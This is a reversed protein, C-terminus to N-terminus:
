KQKVAVMLYYKDIYATDDATHWPTNHLRYYIRFTDNVIKNNNYTSDNTYVGFSWRNEFKDSIPFYLPFQLVNKDFANENVMFEMNFLNCINNFRIWTQNLTDFKSCKFYYNPNESIVKYNGTFLDRKDTSVPNIPSPPNDKCNSLTFILFILLYIRM